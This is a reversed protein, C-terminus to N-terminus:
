VRRSLPLVYGRQARAIRRFSRADGNGRVLGQAIIFRITAAITEIYLKGGSIHRASFRHATASKRIDSNLAAGVARDDRKPKLRACPTSSSPCAVAELPPRPKPQCALRSM